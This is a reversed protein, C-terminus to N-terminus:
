NPEHAQKAVQPMGVLRGICIPYRQRLPPAPSDASHEDWTSPKESSGEVENIISM